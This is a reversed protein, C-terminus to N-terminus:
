GNYKSSVQGWVNRLRGSKVLIQGTDSLLQCNGTKLHWKIMQQKSGIDDNHEDHTCHVCTKVHNHLPRPKSALRCAADNQQKWRRRINHQSSMYITYVCAETNDNCWQTTAILCPVRNSLKISIMHKWTQQARPSRLFWSLCLIASQPPSIALQLTIRSHQQIPVYLVTQHHLEAPDKHKPRNQPSRSTTLFGVKPSQNTLPSSGHRHRAVASSFQEVQSSVVLWPARKLSRAVLWSNVWDAAAQPRPRAFHGPSQLLLQM